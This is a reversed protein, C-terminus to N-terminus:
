TEPLGVLSFTKWHPNEFRSPSHKAYTGLEQALADAGVTDDYILVAKGNWNVEYGRFTEAPQDARVRAQTNSAYPRKRSVYYVIVSSGLSFLSRKM